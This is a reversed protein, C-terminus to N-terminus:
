RTNFDVDIQHTGRVVGPTNFKVGSNKCHYKTLRWVKKFLMLLLGKNINVKSFDQIQKYAYATGDAFKIEGETAMMQAEFDIATAALYSVGFSKGM